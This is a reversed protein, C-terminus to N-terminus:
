VSRKKISLIASMQPVADNLAALVQAKKEMLGSAPGTSALGYLIDPEDDTPIRIAITALGRVQEDREMSYGRKRITALESQLAKRDTITKDSLKELPGGPIARGSFAMLLKGSATAHWPLARGPTVYVGVSAMPSKMAVSEVKGGLMRSIFCTEDLEAALEDLRRDTAIQIWSTDSRLVRNLRTGIVFSANRKGRSVILDSAELAHVLRNVTTKPLDLIKELESALLGQPYATMVELIRVYRELPGSRQAAPRGSADAQERASRYGLREDESPGDENWATNKTM